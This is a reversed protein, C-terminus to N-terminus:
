GMDRVLALLRHRQSPTLSALLRALEATEPSGAGSQAAGPNPIAAENPSVTVREVGRPPVVVAADSAFALPAATESERIPGQRGTVARSHKVAAM